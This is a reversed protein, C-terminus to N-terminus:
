KFTKRLEEQRQRSAREKAQKEMIYQKVSKDTGYDFKELRETYKSLIRKATGLEELESENLTNIFNTPLGFIGVNQNEM